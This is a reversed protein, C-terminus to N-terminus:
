SYMVFVKTVKGQENFFMNEVSKRGTATNLYYISLSDIGTLVDIIKFELDPILQLGMTWYIRIAAKGKLIGQSEPQIKLAMPTEISFDDTYHNLVRDLDHSNWSAVWEEAFHQAFESTM